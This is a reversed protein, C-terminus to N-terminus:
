EKNKIYRNIVAGCEPCTSKRFSIGSASIEITYSEPVVHKCCRCCLFENEKLANEAKKDLKKQHFEVAWEYLQKGNIYVKGKLNAKPQVPAGKRMILYERIYRESVDLIESLERVTYNMDKLKKGKLLVNPNVDEIRRTKSKM